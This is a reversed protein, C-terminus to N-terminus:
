KDGYEKIGTSFGDWKWKQYNFNKNCTSNGTNLYEPESCKRNNTNHICTFCNRIPTPSKLLNWTEDTDNM